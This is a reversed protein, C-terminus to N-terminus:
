CGGPPPPEQVLLSRQASSESGSASRVVLTITYLGPSSYAHGAVPGSAEAGDGFDWTFGVLRGGPDYSASGDVSIWQDIEPADVSVTFSAIPVPDDVIISVQAQAVGGEADVVRLRVIWTGPTTFVYSCRAAREAPAPEPLSWEYDVIGAPARSRTADFMVVLPAPGRLTSADIVATPARTCGGGLGLALLCSTCGLLRIEIPSM